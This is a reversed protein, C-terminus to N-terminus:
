LIHKNYAYSVTKSNSLTFCRKRSDATMDWDGEIDCDVIQDDQVSQVDGKSPYKWKSDSNRLVRCLHDVVFTDNIQETIYGLFWSYSDDENM